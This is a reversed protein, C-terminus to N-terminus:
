LVGYRITGVQSLENRLVFKHVPSNTVSCLVAFHIEITTSQDCLYWVGDHQAEVHGRFNGSNSDAYDCQHFQYKGSLLCNTRADQRFLDVKVIYICFFYIRRTYYFHRQKALLTPVFQKSVTQSCTQRRGDTNFCPARSVASPPRQRYCCSPVQKDTM